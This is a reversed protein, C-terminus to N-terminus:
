DEEGSGPDEADALDLGQVETGPGFLPVTEILEPPPERAEAEILFQYVPRQVGGGVDAVVQESEVLRVGRIFPSAELNEMFTTLAFVTGAQGRIQLDPLEAAGVQGLYLLWTFDPLARAVEDMLYPWVYRAGDIEQIVGVRQAISDRRAQLQETRAIVGALRVSDQVKEQVEAELEEVQGATGMHLWGIVLLALVTVGAGGLVWPDGKPLSPLSLAFSRKKGTGKRGGPLLNVEIM